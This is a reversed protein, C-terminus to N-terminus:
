FERGLLEWLEQYGGDYGLAWIGVGALEKQKALQYKFRLSDENEFYILRQYGSFESIYSYYPSKSETDWVVKPQLSLLSDMIVEYTQSQSYGIYDNGPLRPAYPIPSDVVWNYGYYAVGLVLKNPPINKLYDHLMTEIDYSTYNSNRKIPAVPGATDSGAYHFDYAMIFLQDAVEALALPDTIRPKINSDAFTAVTLKSDEFAADLRKNLFDVLQTYQKTKQADPAGVYEFDLNLDRINKAQMEGIIEEAMVEWCSRCDLIEGSIDDEHSIITLAFRVNHKKAESILQVVSESNAWNRYGPEAYGNEDTKRITGDPNLSLAFYAIDTVKDFQIYKAKDLYWYPMYGYVTYDKQSSNKDALTFVSFGQHIPKVRELTTRMLKTTYMGAMLVFAVVYITATIKQLNSM